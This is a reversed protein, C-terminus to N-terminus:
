DVSFRVSIKEGAFGYRDLDIQVTHGTTIGAPYSLLLPIDGQLFGSNFCRWCEHFITGGRGQCDPCRKRAPLNIRLHGGREAQAPTLVVNMDHHSHPKAAQDAPASTRSYFDGLLDDASPWISRLAPQSKMPFLPEAEPPTHPVLPEPEGTVPTPEHRRSVAEEARKRSQERSQERLSRLNQDYRRRSAPDGLVSYAEQVTLFFTNSGGYSDPHYKKALRRYATKIDSSTSDQPIGLIVYYNRAM